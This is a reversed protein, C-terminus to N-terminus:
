NTSSGHEFYNKKNKCKKKANEPIDLNQALTKNRVSVVREYYTHLREVHKISRLANYVVFKSPCGCNIQLRQSALVCVLV